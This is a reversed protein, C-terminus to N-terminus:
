EVWTVDLSAVPSVADQWVAIVRYAAATPQPSFLYTGDARQSKWFSEPTPESGDRSIYLTAAIYNSRIYLRGEESTGDSVPIEVSGSVDRGDLEFSPADLSPSEEHQWDVNITVVDSYEGDLEAVVKYKAIGELARTVLPPAEPDIAGGWNNEASPVSGDRTMYITFSPDSATPVLRGSEAGGTFLTITSDPEILAGSGTQFGVVGPQELPGPEPEVEEAPAEEAQAEQVVPEEVEEEVTDQSACGALVVLIAFVLVKGVSKM